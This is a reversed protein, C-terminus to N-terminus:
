KDGTRIRVDVKPEHADRIMTKMLDSVNDSRVFPWVDATVSRLAVFDDFDCHERVEILHHGAAGDVTSLIVFHIDIGSSDCSLPLAEVYNHLGRSMRHLDCLLLGSAAYEVTDIDRGHLILRAPVDTARYKWISMPLPLLRYLRIREAIHSELMLVASLPLSSCGVFSASITDSIPGIDDAVVAFVNPTSTQQFNVTLDYGAFYDHRSIRVTLIIQNNSSHTISTEYNAAIWEIDSIDTLGKDSSCDAASQKWATLSDRLLDIREYLDMLTPTSDIALTDAAVHNPLAALTALM